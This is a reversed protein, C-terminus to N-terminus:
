DRLPLKKPLYDILGAPFKAGSTHNFHEIDTHGQKFRYFEYHDECIEVELNEWSLCITSWHGKTVAEPVQCLDRCAAILDHANSVTAPDFPDPSAQVTQFIVDEVAKWNPLHTKQVRM